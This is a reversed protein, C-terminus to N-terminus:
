NEKRWQANIMEEHLKRRDKRTKRRAARLAGQFTLYPGDSIQLPPLDLDLIEGDWSIHYSGFAGQIRVESILSPLHMGASRTGAAAVGTPDFRETRRLHM